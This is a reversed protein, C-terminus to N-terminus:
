NTLILLFLTKSKATQYVVGLDLDTFGSMQSITNGEIPQQHKHCPARKLSNVLVLQILQRRRKSCCSNNLRVLTDVRNCPLLLDFDLDLTLLSGAAHLGANLQMQDIVSWLHNNRQLLECLAAHSASQQRQKM